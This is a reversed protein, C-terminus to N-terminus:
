NIGLKKKYEELRKKCENILENYEAREGLSTIKKELAGVFSKDIEKIHYKALEENKGNIDEDIKIFHHEIEEKLSEIGKELRKTRKAM